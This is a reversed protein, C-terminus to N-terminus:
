FDEVRLEPHNEKYENLWVNDADTLEIKFYAPLNSMKVRIMDEISLFEKEDYFARFGKAQEEADASAGYNWIEVPHKEGNVYLTLNVCAELNEELSFRKERELYERFTELDVVYFFGSMIKEFWKKLFGM